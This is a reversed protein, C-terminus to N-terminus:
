LAIVNDIQALKKLLDIPYPIRASSHTNLHDAHILIGINSASKAVLEYHKLVQEEFHYRESFILSIADAGYESANQAFDRSVTTRCALPDAVIVVCDNYKKKIYKSVYLNLTDIEENELLTFRSSYCMAYFVRAGDLYLFDIYDFLVDYDIEEDDKFPPIIPFIPGKIKNKLEEFKTPKM